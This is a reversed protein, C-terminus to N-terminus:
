RRHLITGGSGVTWVDTASSGWVAYLRGDRQQGLGGCGVLVVVTWLLRLAAFL